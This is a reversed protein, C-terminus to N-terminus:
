PLGVAVAARVVCHDSGRPTCDPSIQLPLVGNTVFVMDIRLLGFPLWKVPDPRWTSGPGWGVTRQVEVLGSSLDGYIPERDTTNFDGLLLLPKGGAILPDVTSRITAIEADRVSTDFDVPLVGMTRLQGPLPHTVVVDLTRGDGLDLLAHILPPDLAVSPTGVFQYSSLLGMGFSGDRPVLMRYPFRQQLTPDAAIAASSGKGLEEIGVIGAKAAQLAAVVDAPRPAEQEVNWTTVGIELGGAPAPTLQLPIWAPVFRVVAIVACAVLGIRLWRRLARAGPRVRAVALPVFLPLPLFLLPAVIQSLALSGNRQPALLNVASLVILLSAYLVALVTMARWASRAV